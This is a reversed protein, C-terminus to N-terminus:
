ATKGSGFLEKGKAVKEDIGRPEPFAIPERRRAAADDLAKAATAANKAKLDEEEKKKRAAETDAENKAKNCAGCGEVSKDKHKGDEHDKAMSENKAKEADEEDKKKKAAEDSENRAKEVAEHAALLDKVPVKKGDVEVLEDIGVHKPQANRAAEVQQYAEVANQLSIEKGEGLDIVAKTSELETRVEQKDKGFTIGFLKMNGGIANMMIRTGEYRGKYVVAVHEYYGDLAEFDYPIGHHKGGPGMKTIAYQCSIEYGNRIAEQTKADWIFCDAYDWGDEPNYAGSVVIGDFEGNKFKQALRDEPWDRHNGLIIPKGEITPRIRDMFGKRVLVTAGLKGDPREMYEYYVLGPELHRLHATRVGGSANRIRQLLQEPTEGLIHEIVEATKMTGGDM